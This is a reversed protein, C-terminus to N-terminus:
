MINHSKWRYTRSSPPWHDLLQAIVFTSYRGYDDALSALTQSYISPINSHILRDSTRDSKQCSRWISRREVYLPRMNGLTWRPELDIYVNGGDFLKTQDGCHLCVSEVPQLQTFNQMNQLMGKLRAGMEIKPAISEMTRDNTYLGHTPHLYTGTGCAQCKRKNIVIFHGPRQSFIRSEHYFRCTQRLNRM